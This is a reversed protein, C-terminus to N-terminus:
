LQKTSFAEGKLIAQVTRTARDPVLVRELAAGALFAIVAMVALAMGSGVFRALFRSPSLSPRIARHARAAQTMDMRAERQM